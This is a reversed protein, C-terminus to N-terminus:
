ADIAKVSVPRRLHQAYQTKLEEVKDADTVEQAFV